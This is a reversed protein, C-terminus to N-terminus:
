ALTGIDCHLDTKEGTETTSIECVGAGGWGRIIVPLSM